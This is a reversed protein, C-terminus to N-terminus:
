ESATPVKIYFIVSHCNVEWTGSLHVSVTFNVSFYCMAQYPADHSQWIFLQIQKTIPNIICRQHVPSGISRFIGSVEVQGIQGVVIPQTVNVSTIEALRFDGVYTPIMISGYIIGGILLYHLLNRRKPKWSISPTEVLHSYFFQYM